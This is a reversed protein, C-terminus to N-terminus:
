QPVPHAGAEKGEFTTNTHNQEKTSAQGGENSVWQSTSDYLQSLCTDAQWIDILCFLTCLKTAKTKPFVEFLLKANM